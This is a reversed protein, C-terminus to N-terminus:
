KNNEIHNGAKIFNGILVRADEESFYCDEYGDWTLNKTIQEALESYNKPITELFLDIKREIDEEAEKLSSYHGDIDKKNHTWIHGLATASFTGRDESVHYTTIIGKYKETKLKM